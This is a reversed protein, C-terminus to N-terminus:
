ENIIVHSSMMKLQQGCKTGILPTFALIGLAQAFIAQFCLM